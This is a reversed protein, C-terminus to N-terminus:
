HVLKMIDNYMVFVMLIMFAVFGAFHVMGEKEPPIPKGRIVEIFMFVLRGGDLAPLPLLNLIGLNVSLLIVINMMTFLISSVGYPKVEEYTDGVFQAMGIPGSVDNKSAQGTLLMGLSKYTAKVWYEVEYASYQFVQFPNCKMYEGAGMLGIYYRGATEDYVPTVVTEMKQGDRKYQIELSVGKNLASILSIERYVHIREHGIKTIMDGAQLGAAEAPSNEMFGTVVPRDVGTFAVIVLAFVFALIFNFFPGAFVTAIRKWVGAETFACGEAQLKPRATEESVRENEQLNGDEGDFMCAGGLPLLKLSYKTGGKEFSFLTPGMGVCFELVRIGNRRGILYHGFEHSIVVIGFIVLFLIITAIM